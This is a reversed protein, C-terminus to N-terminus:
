LVCYKYLIGSGSEFNEFSVFNFMTEEGSIQVSTQLVQIDIIRLVAWLYIFIKLSSCGFKLPSVM